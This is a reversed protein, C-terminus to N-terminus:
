FPIDDSFDDSPQNQHQVKDQYSGQFEAPKSGQGQNQYGSGASNAPGAYNTQGSGIFQVTNANIVVKMRNQGDQEWRDQRMTGEVAVLKGKSLYQNLSEAQKGWLDVDWYSPEEVWESGKKRRSSTAVSFRCIASGSNTYKLEADRTLRGVLVAVSLSSM